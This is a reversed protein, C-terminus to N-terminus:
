LDAQTVHDVAALWKVRSLSNPGFFIFGVKTPKLPFFDWHQTNYDFGKFGDNRVLFYAFNLMLVPKIFGVRHFIQQLKFGFAWTKM